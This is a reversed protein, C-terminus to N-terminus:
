ATLAEFILTLLHAPPCSPTVHWPIGCQRRFHLLGNQWARCAQNFADQQWVKAPATPDNIDCLSAGNAFGPEPHQLQLISLDTQTVLHRWFPGDPLPGHFDSILLTRGGQYQKRMDYWAQWCPPAWSRNESKFIGGRLHHRQKWQKILSALLTRADEDMLLRVSPSEDLFLAFCKQAAGLKEMEHLRGTKLTDRLHLRADIRPPSDMSRSQVESLLSLGQLACIGSGHQRSGPPRRLLHSLDDPSLASHKSHM